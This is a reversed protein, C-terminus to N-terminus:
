PDRVQGPPTHSPDASEGNRGAIVPPPRPRLIVRWCPESASRGGHSPDVRVLYFKATPVAAHVRLRRAVPRVSRHRPLGPRRVGNPWRKRPTSRRRPRCCSAAISTSAALRCNPDNGGAPVTFEPVLRNAPRVGHEKCDCGKGTASFIRRRCKSPRFFCHPPIRRADDSRM